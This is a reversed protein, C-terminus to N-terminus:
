QFNINVKASQCLMPNVEVSLAICIKVVEDLKPDGKLEEIDSIRKLSKLKCQESLEKASLGRARRVISLNQAFTKAYDNM